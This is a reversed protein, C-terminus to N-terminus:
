RLRDLLRDWQRHDEPRSMSPLLADFLDIPAILTATEGVTTEVIVKTTEDDRGDPISVLDEVERDTRSPEAELPIRLLVDERQGVSVYIPLDLVLETYYAALVIRGRAQRRWEDDAHGIAGRIAIGNATSPGVKLGLPFVVPDPPV